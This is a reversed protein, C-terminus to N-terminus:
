STGLWQLLRSWGPAAAHISARATEPRPRGCGGAAPAPQGWRTSPRPRTSSRSGLTPTHRESGGLSRRVELTHGPDQRRPRAPRDAALVRGRSRPRSLPGTAPHRASGTRTRRTTRDPRGHAPQRLPGGRVVLHGVEVSVQTASAPRAHERDRVLQAAPPAPHAARRDHRQQGEDHGDAADEDQAHQPGLPRHRRRVDSGSRRSRDLRRRSPPQPPSPGPSPRPSPCPRSPRGPPRRNAPTVRGSRRRRAPRARRRAPRAAPGRAAGAPARTASAILAAPPVRSPASTAARLRARSTTSPSCIRTGLGPSDGAATPPPPGPPGPVPLLPPPEPEDPPEPAGTLRLVASTAARSVRGPTPGTSACRIMSQRVSCPRKVETSSSPSTLPMPSCASPAAAGSPSAAVGRAGARGPSRTCAGRPGDSTTRVPRSVTRRTRGRVDRRRSRRRSTGTASTQGTTAKQPSTPGMQSTAVTASVTSAVPTREATTAVPPVAAALDPPAAPVPPVAPRRARSVRARRGLTRARPRAAARRSRAASHATSARSRPAATPWRATLVAPGTPSRAVSRATTVTRAVTAPSGRATRLPDPPVAPPWSRARAGETLTTRRSTVWTAPRPRFSSPSRERARTPRPGCHDVSRQCSSTSATRRSPGASGPSSTTATAVGFPATRTTPSRTPDERGGVGHALAETRGGVGEPGVRAPQDRREDDSVRRLGRGVEGRGHERRAETM